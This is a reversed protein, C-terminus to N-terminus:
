SRPSRAGKMAQPQLRTLTLDTTMKAVIGDGITDALTGVLQEAGVVGDTFARAHDSITDFGLHQLRLDLGAHTLVVSQAPETLLYGVIDM